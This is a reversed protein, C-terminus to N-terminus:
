AAPNKRARRRQVYVWAAGAFLVTGVALVM